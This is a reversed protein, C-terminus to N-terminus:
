KAEGDDSPVFCSKFDFWELPDITESHQSPFHDQVPFFINENLGIQEKLLYHRGQDSAEKGTGWYM